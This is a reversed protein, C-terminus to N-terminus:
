EAAEVQNLRCRQWGKSPVWCYAKGNEIKAERIVNKKLGLKAILKTSNMRQVM